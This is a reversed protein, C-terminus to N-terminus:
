DGTVLVPLENDSLDVRDITTAVDGSVNVELGVDAGRVVGHRMTATGAFGQTGYLRVGAYAADAIVFRELTTTSGDHRVGTGPSGAGCSADATPAEIRVDALDARGHDLGIAAGRVGTLVLRRALLAGNKQCLGSCQSCDGLGSNEVVVDSVTASRTDYLDIARRNLAAFHMRDATVEVRTLVVGIGADEVILDEITARGKGLRPGNSRPDIVATQILRADTDDFRLAHVDTANTVVVNRGDFTGGRMHVKGIRDFWVGELTVTGTPVDLTLGDVGAITADTLALTGEVILNSGDVAVARLTAMGDSDLSLARASNEIRINSLTANGGPVVLATGVGAVALNTGEARGRASIGETYAGRISVDEVEVTGSSEAIVAIGGSGGSVVTGRLTTRETARV